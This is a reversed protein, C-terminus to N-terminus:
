RAGRLGLEHLRGSLEFAGLSTGLLPLNQEESQRVTDESPERGNTIIVGALDKLVAVAVVNPHIQITIWLDDKRGHAMVDSMLDGIYAGAVPRDLGGRGAHVKLEIQRVIDSLTM